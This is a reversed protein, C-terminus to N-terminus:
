LQASWVGGEAEERGERCRLCIIVDTGSEVHIRPRCLVYKLRGRVYAGTLLVAWVVLLGALQSVNPLLSCGPVHSALLGRHTNSCFDIKLWLM